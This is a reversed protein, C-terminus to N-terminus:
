NATDKTSTKSLDFFRVQNVSLVYATNDSTLILRKSGTGTDCSYLQTGESNFGYATNGDLIAVTGKYLSISEAGYDTDISSTKEGNDNYIEIACSRGDGSKSLALAFSNTDPNFCYNALTKSDYEVTVYNEEGRKIVYSSSQGVLVIRNDNLYDSDVITDGNISYHSVPEEKTFDLVYVGTKVAGNDSTIGCAVCGSGDSNLSISNIYYESFSYKYIRNNNSNFVYLVSLYGSGETVIGYVGNSSIDATYIAGEAEGSYLMGDFDQIQYGTTGIGYTLFRNGSSKMVPKSYRLQVNAVESGTSNLTVFSTDSAYAVHGQNVAFNGSNVETGILNVPYGNGANGLVDYTWWNSINDWTLNDRNAFAFVILGAALAICVGILIKKVAEPSIDTKEQEYDDLPMDEYSIVDRESTKREAYHGKFKKFM